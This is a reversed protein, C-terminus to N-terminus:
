GGKNLIDRPMSAFCHDPDLADDHPGCRCTEEARDAQHTIEELIRTAEVLATGHVPWRRPRDAHSVRAMDTARECHHEADQIHRRLRSPDEPGHPPNLCELATATAQLLAAYSVLFDKPGSAESVSTPESTEFAQREYTLARAISRVYTGIREVTSITEDYRHLIAQTNSWPQRPNLKTNEQERELDARTRAAQAALEECRHSWDSWADEGSTEGAAARALDHLLEQTLGTLDAVRGRARDSHPAPAIVFHAALGCCVGIVASTVLHGIYDIRGGGGVFAFLAVVPVQSRQGGLLDARAVVLALFVLVALTWVHVGVTSGFGAAVATGIAMAGLYQASDRLSRYVTSQLALLATFPAFTTVATPLLWSALCWAATAAVAGKSLLLM